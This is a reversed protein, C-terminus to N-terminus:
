VCCFFVWDWVDLKYCILGYGDGFLSVGGVVKDESFLEFWYEIFILRSNVM